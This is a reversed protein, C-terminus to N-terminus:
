AGVQSRAAELTNAAELSPPAKQLRVAVEGAERLLALTQLTKPLVGLGLDWFGLFSTSAALLARHRVQSRAAELTNAAELSPPARQLRVAVAGAERLLALRAARARPLGQRLEAALARAGGLAGDYEDAAPLEEARQGGGGMSQGGAPRSAGGRM